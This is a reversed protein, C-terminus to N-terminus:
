ENARHLLFRLQSAACANVPDIRFRLEHTGIYGHKKSHCAASTGLTMTVTSAEDAFAGFRASTTMMRALSVSIQDHGLEDERFTDLELKLEPEARSCLVLQREGCSAEASKQKCGLMCVKPARLLDDSQVTQNKMLNKCSENDPFIFPM